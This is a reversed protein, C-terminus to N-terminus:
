KERARLASTNIRGEIVLTNIYTSPRITGAMTGTAGRIMVVSDNFPLQYLLSPRTPQTEDRSIPPGWGLKATAQAYFDFFEKDTMPQPTRSSSVTVATAQPLIVRAMEKVRQSIEAKTLIAQQISRIDTVRVTPTYAASGQPMPPVMRRTKEQYLFQKVVPPAQMMAQVKSLKGKVLVTYGLTFGNGPRRITGLVLVEGENRTMYASTEEIDALPNAARPLSLFKFPETNPAVIGQDVYIRAFDSWRLTDDAPRFILVQIKQISSPLVGPTASQPRGVQSVWVEAGAPYPLPAVDPAAVAVGLPDISPRFERITPESLAPDALPLAASVTLIAACLGLKGRLSSRM